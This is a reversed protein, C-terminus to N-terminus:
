EPSGMQGVFREADHTRAVITGARDLVLAIWGPPLKQEALLDSLRKPAVGANLAYRVEGARKVPVGIGIIGSQTLRGQFLDTVLPAGTEFVRLLGGPDGQSPLPEGFARLTNLLQRGNRDILTVNVLARDQLAASAQDQFAALNASSLYPSTALALLASKTGALEADIAAILARATTMSDRALRDRERYYYDYGI